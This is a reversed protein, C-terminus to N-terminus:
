KWPPKSSRSQDTKVFVKQSVPIYESVDHASTESAQWTVSDESMISLEKKLYHKRPVERCGLPPSSISSRTKANDERALQMEAIMKVYKRLDDKTETRGILPANENSKMTIASDNQDDLSHMSVPHEDLSLTARRMPEQSLKTHCNPMSESKRPGKPECYKDTYVPSLNDTNDSSIIHLAQQWQKQMVSHLEALQFKTARQMNLRTELMSSRQLAQALQLECLRKEERHKEELLNIELRHKDIVDKIKRAASEAIIQQKLEATKLEELFESQATDLQTQFEQLKTKVVEDVQKQYVEQLEARIKEKQEVISKTEDKALKEAKKADEITALLSSNKQQLISNRNMEEKLKLQLNEKEQRLVTLEAECADLAKHIVGMENRVEGSRSREKSLESQVTKLTEETQQNKELLKNFEMKMQEYSNEAEQMMSKYSELEDAHSKLLDLKEKMTTDSKEKYGAALDLAKSLEGELRKIQAQQEAIESQHKETISQLNTQANRHETELMEVQQKLKSWSVHFQSMLANKENDVRVAVAVKEQQELLRKQLEQILHECHERRFKEEELKIRFTEEQSRTPNVDWFDSLSLLRQYRRSQPDTNTGVHAISKGFKSRERDDRSNGNHQSLSTKCLDLPEQTGTVPTVTSSFQVEKVRSVPDARGALLSSSQVRVGNTSVDDFSVGQHDPVTEKTRIDGATTTTPVKSLHFDVNRISSISETTHGNSKAASPVSQEWTRFESIMKDTENLHFSDSYALSVDPFSTVDNTRKQSFAADTLQSTCSQFDLKRSSFTSRQNDRGTNESKHQTRIAGPTEQNSTTDVSQTQLSENRYLCGGASSIRKSLELETAEMEQLLEDVESLEMEQVIKSRVPQQGATSEGSLDTVPVSSRLLSHPRYYLNSTSTHDNARLPSRSDQTTSVTTAHSFGTGCSASPVMFSDSYSTLADRKAVWAPNNTNTPSSTIATAPRFRADDRSCNAHKQSSCGSPTFPVSLCNRLKVPSGGHLSAGQSVTFRTSAQPLTQRTQHLQCGSGGYLTPQQSDLSNNLVSVDLSNDRSEIASIRSDLSQMHGVLESIVSTRHRRLSGGGTPDTSSNDSDTSSPVRFIDPPILLLVDTDDSESM